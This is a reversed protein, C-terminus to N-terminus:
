QQPRRTSAFVSAALGAVLLSTTSDLTGTYRLYIVSAFAIVLVLFRITWLFRWKKYEIDPSEQKVKALGLIYDKAAPTLDELMKMLRGALTAGQESELFDMLREFKRTPPEDDEDYYDGRVVAGDGNEGDPEGSPEPLDNDQNDAM